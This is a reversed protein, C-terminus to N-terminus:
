AQEWQFFEWLSRANIQLAGFMNDTKATQIHFFVLLGIGPMGHERLVSLDTHTARQWGLIQTAEFQLVSHEAVFDTDGRQGTAVTKDGGLGSQAAVFGAFVLNAIDQDIQPHKQM